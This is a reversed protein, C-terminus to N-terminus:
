LSQVLALYAGCPVRAGWRGRGRRRRGRGVGARHPGPSRQAAERQGRGRQGPVWGAKEAAVSSRPPVSPCLPSPSAPNTGGGATGQLHQGTMTGKATGRASAHRPYPHGRSACRPLPPGAPTPLPWFTSEPRVELQVKDKSTDKFRAVRPFLRRFPARSHAPFPGSPPVAVYLSPHRTLQSPARLQGANPGNRPSPPRKAM